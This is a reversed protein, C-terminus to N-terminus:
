LSFMTVNICGSLSSLCVFSDAFVDFSGGIASSYWSVFVRQFSGARVSSVSATPGVPALLPVSLPCAPPCVPPCLPVGAGSVPTIDKEYLVSSVSATPGVPASLPCVPSRSPVYPVGAGSVPTIDKEYLAINSDNEENVDLYEVLGDHLFDQFTRLGRALEEM